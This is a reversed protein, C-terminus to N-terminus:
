PRAGRLLHGHTLFPFLNPTKLFFFFTSVKRGPLARRNKGRFYFVRKEFLLGKFLWRSATFLSTTLRPVEFDFPLGLLLSTFSFAGAHIQLSSGAAVSDPPCLLYGLSNFSFVGPSLSKRGRSASLVGFFIAAESCPGGECRPRPLKRDRPPPLIALLTRLSGRLFFPAKERPVFDLRPLGLFRLVYGKIVLPV